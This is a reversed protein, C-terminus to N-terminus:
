NSSIAFLEHYHCSSESLSWYYLGDLFVSPSSRPAVGVLSAEALQRHLKEAFAELAEQSRFHNSHTKNWGTGSGIEFKM